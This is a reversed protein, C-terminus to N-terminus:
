GHYQVENHSKPEPNNKITPLDTEIFSIQELNCLMFGHHKGKKVEVEIIFQHQGRLIGEIMLSDKGSFFMIKVPHGFLSRLPDANDDEDEQDPNGPPIFPEPPEIEPRNM